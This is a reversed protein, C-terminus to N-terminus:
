RPAPFSGHNDLPKWVGWLALGFGDRRNQCGNGVFVEDETDQAAESVSELWCRDALDTAAGEIVRLFYVSGAPVLRRVPKPGPRRGVGKEYSWGSLPRWRDVCAAVLRVRVETHPVTGEWRPQGAIAGAPNLWGPCWGYRFLGPSALVMRVLPEDPPLAALAQRLDNDCTWGQPPDSCVGWHILRREGGLPHLANLETLATPLDAGRVRVALLDPERLARALGSEDDPRPFRQLNLGVSQFLMGEAGAGSRFDMQVHTRQDQQPSGLFGAPWRKEGKALFCTGAANGLWRAMQADSWFRPPADPKFDDGIDEPLAAPMLGLPLNCGGEGDSLPLPRAAFADLSGDHNKRVTVDQPAPFYLRGGVCPFPGAVSIAKLRAIQAEYAESGSTKFGGELGGLLTRLSGALVSPYLWDLSKMRLGSSFPRGDRAVVPDRPTLSLWYPKGNM